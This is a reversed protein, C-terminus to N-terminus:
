EDQHTTTFWSMINRVQEDHAPAGCYPVVVYTTNWAPYVGADEQPQCWLDQNPAWLATLAGSGDFFCFRPVSPTGTLRQNSVYIALADMAPADLSIDLAFRQQTAAKAPLPWPLHCWQGVEQNWRAITAGDGTRLHISATIPDIVRDADSTPAVAIRLGTWWYPEHLGDLTETHRTIGHIVRHKWGVESDGAVPPWHPGIAGFMRTCGDRPGQKSQLSRRM